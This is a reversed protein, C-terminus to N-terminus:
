ALGGWAKIAEGQYEGPLGAVAVDAVAPHGDIVEELIKAAIVLRPVAPPWATMDRPCDCKLVQAARNGLIAALYPVSPAQARGQGHRGLVLPSQNEVHSQGIMDRPM